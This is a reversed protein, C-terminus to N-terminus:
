ESFMFWLSLMVDLMFQGGQDTEYRDRFFKRLTEHLDERVEDNM